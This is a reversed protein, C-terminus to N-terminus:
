PASKKLGQRNALILYVILIAFPAVVLLVLFASSLGDQRGSAVDISDLLLGALLWTTFANVTLLLKRGLRYQAEANDETITVPYNYIHPVRALAMMSVYLTLGVIPLIVLTGKGGWADPEGSFGFHTPIREPLQQWAFPVALLLLLVGATAILALIKDSAKWSPRIGPRASGKM